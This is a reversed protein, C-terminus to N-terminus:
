RVYDEYDMILFYEVTRDFYNCVIRLYWEYTQISGSHLAYGYPKQPYITVTNSTLTINDERSPSYRDKSILTISEPPDQFTIEIIVPSSVVGIHEITKEIQESLSISSTDTCGVIPNIGADKSTLTDNAITFHVTKIEKANTGSSTTNNTSNPIVQSVCGSLILCLIALIAVIRM